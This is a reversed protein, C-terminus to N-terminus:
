KKPKDVARRQIIKTYKLITDKDKKDVKMYTFNKKHYKNIFHQKDELHNFKDNAIKTLLCLNQEFIIDRLVQSM